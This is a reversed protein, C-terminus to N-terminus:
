GIRVTYIPSWQGVRENKILGVARYEFNEPVGPATLTPTHSFERETTKDIFQWMTAGLKRHQYEIQDFKGKSATFTVVGELSVEYKLTVTLENLNVAASQTREWMLDEGDAAKDYAKLLKTDAVKRRFMRELGTAAGGPLTLNVFLPPASLTEGESFQGAVGTKGELLLEAFATASQGAARNQSLWNLGAEYSDAIMTFFELEANTWGFKAMYNPAKVATNRFVLLKGPRDSSLWDMNEPM